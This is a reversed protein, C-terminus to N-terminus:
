STREVLRVFRPHKRLPDFEPDIRLWAPSLYYPITLLRELIDIAKDPEGVRMYIRALQHELYPGTYADASTPVLAVGKEGAAVAEAKRGLYTLALGYFAHGQADDPAVRIREAFALRASDAYIRARARDGLHEHTQALVIAWAARDGFSTPALRVLLAQLDPPLVWYLEYTNGLFAALDAPPTGRAAIRVTERARELDGQALFVMMKQLLIQINTSDLGLARDSAALAEPYRRLRLYTYVLRRGVV